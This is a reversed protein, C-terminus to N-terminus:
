SGLMFDLKYFVSRFECLFRSSSALTVDLVILTSVITCLLFFLLLQLLNLVLLLLETIVASIGAINLM